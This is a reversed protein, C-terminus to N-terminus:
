GFDKPWFPRLCASAGPLPVLFSGHESRRQLKINNQAGFICAIIQHAVVVCTRPLEGRQGPCRSGIRGAPGQVRKGERQSRGPTATLMQKGESHQQKLLQGVATRL